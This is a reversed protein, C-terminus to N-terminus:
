ILKDVTLICRFIWGTPDDPRKPFGTDPWIGSKVQQIDPLIRSVSFLRNDQWVPILFIVM